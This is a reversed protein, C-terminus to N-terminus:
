KLTDGLDLVCVGEFHGCGLLGCNFNGMLPTIDGYGMWFWVGISLGLGVLGGIGGVLYCVGFGMCWGHVSVMCRVM